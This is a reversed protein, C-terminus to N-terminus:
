SRPTPAESKLLALAFAEVRHLDGDGLQSLIPTLKSVGTGDAILAEPPVRLAGSLREILHNNLNKRGREVESMHAVSVGVMDALDSIRLGRQQRIARINLNLTM